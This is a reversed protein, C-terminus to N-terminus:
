LYEYDILIKIGWWEMEWQGVKGRIEVCQYHKGEIPLYEKNALWKLLGSFGGTSKYKKLFHWMNITSIKPDLFQGLGINNESMVAYAFEYTKDVKLIEYIVDPSKKQFDLIKTLQSVGKNIEETKEIVERQESPEIFWKLEFLMVIKEKDNIVALDIDPLTQDPLSGDFFRIDPSSFEKKLMERMRIEKEHVLKSYQSHEEPIKNLLITLNREMSSGMFIFPAIAYCDQNLKILPQIAPDPMKIGRNGYTMDDIFYLATKQTVNAYKMIAWELGSKSYLLLSNSYGMGICGRQAATNRAVIHIFSLATLVKAIQRFEMLSYRSFEWSNPLRFAQDFHNSLYKIAAEISRKGIKYNFNDGSVKVSSTIQDLSNFELPINELKNEKSLTSTFRDYADFRSDWRNKPRIRNESLELEVIGKSSYTFASVFAEYEEALLSLEHCAKYYDDNYTTSPTGGSKCNKWLWYLPYKLFVILSDTLISIDYNNKSKKLEILNLDDYYALLYWAAESFSLNLLPNSMYYDDVEKEITRLEPSVNDQKETM